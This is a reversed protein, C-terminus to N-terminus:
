GLPKQYVPEQLFDPGEDESELLDDLADILSDLQEPTAELEISHGEDDELNLVFSREEARITFRTLQKM